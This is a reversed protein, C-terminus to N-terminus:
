MLLDKQAIGLMGASQEYVYQALIESAAGVLAIKGAGIETLLKPQAVYSFLLTSCAGAGLSTATGEFSKMKDDTSLYPLVLTHLFDNAMSSAVGLSIGVAWMPMRTGFVDVNAAGGSLYYLAGYTTAAHVGYKLGRNMFSM